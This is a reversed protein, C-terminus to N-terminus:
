EEILKLMCLYCFPLLDESLTMVTNMINIINLCVSLMTLVTQVSLQFCNQNSFLCARLTHLSHYSERVDCLQM